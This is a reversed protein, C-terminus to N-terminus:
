NKIKKLYIGLSFSSILLPVFLSSVGTAPIETLAGKQEETRATKNKYQNSPEVKQAAEKEAAPSVTPTPTTQNRSLFRPLRGGLNIRGTVVGFIVLVVVLGIFLSIIKNINEM